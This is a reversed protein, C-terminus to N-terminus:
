RRRRPHGVTAGPSPRRAGDARKSCTSQTTAQILDSHSMLSRLPSESAGALPHPDTNVAQQLLRYLLMGCSNSRRRNFRFTYEDLYYALHEQSVAYHLTGIYPSTSKYKIPIVELPLAFYIILTSLCKSRAFCNSSAASFAAAFGSKEASHTVATEDSVVAWAATAM